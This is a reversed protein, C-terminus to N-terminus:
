QGRSPGRGLMVRMDVNAFVPKEDSQPTHRNRVTPVGAVTEQDFILTDNAALVHRQYLEKKDDSVLPTESQSSATTTGIGYLHLYQETTGSGYSRKQAPVSLYSGTGNQHNSSSTGVFKSSPYSGFRTFDFTQLESLFALRGLQEVSKGRNMEAYITVNGDPPAAYTSYVWLPYQFTRSYGNSSSAVGSTNQDTTQDNGGNTFLGHNSYTLNQRWTVLESGSSTKVTSTITLVRQAKVSYDLTTTNPHYAANLSSHLLLTPRPTDLVATSGTTIHGKVDLWLFLKGTVVWYSGITTTLEGNGAGDDAIGVVRIEFDHDKGDSLMPLFPTIDIEDELLDYADVGVVPRWFSPTIGGTFIVPFPWAVGALVGDILLQLERFPSFGYLTTENGFAKTDSSLVNSWWFEESAQGCASISFVAKKVNQPLSLTNIAKQEPVTFGSPSDLASQRRSVPLIADATDVVTETSFFTATLTTYFSGTYTDDVLNGLDFIIKQRQQFLVLFTTMDKIYTWSIGNQTPEATSTRFIETDNFFMLALRDYQRGASTVTLNFTVRNFGCSPPIYDATSVPTLLRYLSSFPMPLCEGVFPKGYSWGFTHVMLTQQCDSVPSLVPPSVQIVQLPNSSDNPARSGLLERPLRPDPQRHHSLLALASQPLIILM